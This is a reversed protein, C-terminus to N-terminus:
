HPVPPTRGAGRLFDSPPLLMEIQEIGPTEPGACTEIQADADPAAAVAAAAQGLGAGLAAAVAFAALPSHHDRTNM